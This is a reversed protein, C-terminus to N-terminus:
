RHAADEPQRGSQLACTHAPGPSGCPSGSRACMLYAWSLLGASTHPSAPLDDEFPPFLWALLSGTVAHVVDADSFADTRLSVDGSGRCRSTPLWRSNPFPLSSPAIRSPRAAALPSFGRFTPHGHVIRCSIPGASGRRSCLRPLCVRGTPTCGRPQVSPRALTPQCVDYPGLPLALRARTFDVAREPTTPRRPRGCPLGLSAPSLIAASLNRVRFVLAHSSPTATLRPMVRGVLGRPDVRSPRPRPPQALGIPRATPPISVRSIM